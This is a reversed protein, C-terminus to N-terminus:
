HGPTSPPRESPKVRDRKTPPQTSTDDDRKDSRSRNFLRGLEALPHQVDKGFDLGSPTFLETYVQAKKLDSGSLSLADLRSGYFAVMRTNYRYLPVLIQVLFM